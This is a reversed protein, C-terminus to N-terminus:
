NVFTDKLLIYVIHKSIGLENNVQPTRPNQTSRKNQYFLQQKIIVSLELHTVKEQSPNRYFIIRKSFLDNMLFPQCNSTKHARYDSLKIHLQM